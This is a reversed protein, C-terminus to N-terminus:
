RFIPYFIQTFFALTRPDTLNRQSATPKSCRPGTLRGACQDGKNASAQSTDELDISMHSTKKRYSAINPQPSRLAIFTM